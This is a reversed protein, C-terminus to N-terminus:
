LMILYGQNTIIELEENAKALAIDRNKIINQLDNIIKNKSELQIQLLEFVDPITEKKKEFGKLKDHWYVSKNRVNKENEQLYKSKNVISRSQLRKTTKRIKKPTKKFLTIRRM